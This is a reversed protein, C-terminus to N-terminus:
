WSGRMARLILQILSDVAARHHAHPPEFQRLLVNSRCSGVSDATTFAMAATMSSMISGRCQRWLIVGYRLASPPRLARGKGEHEGLWAGAREVLRPIPASHPNKGRTHGIEYDALRSASIELRQALEARNWGM